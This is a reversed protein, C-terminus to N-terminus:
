KNGRSTLSTSPKWIDAYNYAKDEVTKAATVEGATAVKWGADWSDDNRQIALVKGIVAYKSDIYCTTHINEKILICQRYSNIKSM